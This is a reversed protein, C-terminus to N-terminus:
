SAMATLPIYPLLMTCNPVSSYQEHLAIKLVLKSKTLYISSGNLSKRSLMFYMIVLHEIDLFETEIHGQLLVFFQNEFPFIQM